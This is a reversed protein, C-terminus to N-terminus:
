YRGRPLVKKETYGATSLVFIADAVPKVSLETATIKSKIAGKDINIELPLGKIKRAIEESIFGTAASCIIKDTYWVTLITTNGRNNKDTIVLKTCDYGFIKKKEVSTRLVLEYTRGPLIRKMGDTDMKTFIKEGTGDMLMLTGKSDTLTRVTYLATVMETLSRENKFYISLGSNGIPAPMDNGDAGSLATKYKVFGEKLQAMAPLSLVLAALVIMKRM